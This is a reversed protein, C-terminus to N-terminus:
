PSKRQDSQPTNGVPPAIEKNVIGQLKNEFNVDLASDEMEAGPDVGDAESVGLREQVKEGGVRLVIDIVAGGIAQHPDNEDIAVERSSNHNRKVKDKLYM